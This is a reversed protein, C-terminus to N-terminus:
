QRIQMTEKPCKWVHIYLRTQEYGYWLGRVGKNIAGREELLGERSEYWISIRKGYTLVHPLKRGRM